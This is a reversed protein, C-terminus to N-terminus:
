ELLQLEAVTAREVAESLQAELRKSSVVKELMADGAERATKAELEAEEVAALAEELQAAAENRVALLEESMGAVDSELRLVTEELAAERPSKMARDIKDAMARSKAPLGELPSGTSPEEEQSGSIGSGASTEASWSVSRKAHSTYETM